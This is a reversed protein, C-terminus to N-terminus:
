IRIVRTKNPFTDEGIVTHEPIYAVKLRDCGSYAKTGIELCTYPIKVETLGTSEFARPYIYKLNEGYDVEKLNTNGKFARSKIRETGRLTVKSVNTDAFSNEQVENVTLRINGRLSSSEFASVGIKSALYLNNVKKLSSSSFACDGIVTSCNLEIEYIEGNGECANEAIYRTNRGTVLKNIGDGVYHLESVSDPLKYEYRDTDLYEVIINGNRDLSAETRNSGSMGIFELLKETDADVCRLKDSLMVYQRSNIKKCVANYIVLDEPSVDFNKAMDKISSATYLTNGSNSWTVYMINEQTGGVVVIYNYSSVALSQRRKSFWDERDMYGESKMMPRNGVLKVNYIADKNKRLARIVDKDSVNFTDGTETDYLVYGVDEQKIIDYKRSVAVIM